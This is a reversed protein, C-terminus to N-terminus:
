GTVGPNKDEKKLGEGDVAELSMHAKTGDEELIAEYKEKYDALLNLSLRQCKGPVGAAIAVKLEKMTLSNLCNALEEQTIDGMMFRLYGLESKVYVHKAELISICKEKVPNTINEMIVYVVGPRFLNRVDSRALTTPRGTRM